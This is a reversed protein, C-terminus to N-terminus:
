AQEILRKACRYADIDALISCTLWFLAGVCLDRSASQQDEDTEALVNMWGVVLLTM